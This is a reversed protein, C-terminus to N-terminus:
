YKRHVVDGPKLVVSDLRDCPMRCMRYLTDRVLLVSYDGAWFAWRSYETPGIRGAVSNPILAVFGSEMGDIILRARSGTPRLAGAFSDAGTVVPLVRLSYPLGRPDTPGQVAAQLRYAGSAPFRVGLPSDTPGALSGAASPKVISLLLEAGSLLERIDASAGLTDAASWFAFSDKSQAFVIWTGMDGPVEDVYKRTTDRFCFGGIGPCVATEGASAGQGGAASDSSAEDKVPSCAVLCTLM